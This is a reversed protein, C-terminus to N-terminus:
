FGVFGQDSSIEFFPPQLVSRFPAVCKFIVLFAFFFGSVKSFFVFFM